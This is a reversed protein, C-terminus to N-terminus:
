AAQRASPSSKVELNIPRRPVFHRFAARCEALMSYIMGDCSRTEPAMVTVLRLKPWLMTADAESDSGVHRPCEALPDLMERLAAAFIRCDASMCSGPASVYLQELHPQRGLIRALYIEPSPDPIVPQTFDLWVARPQSHTWTALSNERSPAGGRQDPVISVSLHWTAVQGFLPAVKDPGSGPSVTVREPDITIGISGSRVGTLHPSLQVLNEYISDRSFHMTFAEDISRVRHAHKRIISLM